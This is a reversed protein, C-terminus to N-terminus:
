ELATLTAFPVAIGCEVENILPNLMGCGVLVVKKTADPFM